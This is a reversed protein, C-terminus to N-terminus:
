TLGAWGKTPFWLEDVTAMGGLCLSMCLTAPFDEWDKSGVGRAALRHQKTTWAGAFYDFDHVDGTRTTTFGPPAPAPSPPTAAWAATALGSATSAGVALALLTRAMTKM